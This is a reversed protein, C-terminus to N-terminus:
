EVVITGSHYGHLHDHFPWRGVYNFTFDFYEGQMLSQCSDFSSGLCDTPEKEPYLTHTPHIGSAPWTPTASRNSFRIRTGKKITVSTTAYGDDTYVIELDYPDHDTKSNGVVGKGPAEVPVNRYRSVVPDSYRAHVVSAAIVLAAIVLGWVIVKQKM